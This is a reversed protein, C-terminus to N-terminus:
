SQFKPIWDGDGQVIQLSILISKSGLYIIIAYCEQKKKCNEQTVLRNNESLMLLDSLNM